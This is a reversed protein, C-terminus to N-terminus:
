TELCAEDGKLVEERAIHIGVIRGCKPCQRECYVIEMPLIVGLTWDCGDSDCAYRILFADEPIAEATAVM